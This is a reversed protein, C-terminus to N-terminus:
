PDNRRTKFYEAIRSLQAGVEYLLQVPIMMLVMSLADPPSLVASVAANGVIAIRRGQSWLSASVWGWATSFTMVVPLEMVLATVLLVGLSTNVYSLLRWHPQGADGGFRLVAKLVEPLVFIYGLVVGILFVFFVTFTLTLIRSKENNKLGPGVFGAVEFGLPVIALFFGLVLSIRLYAWVTEFIETVIIQPVPFSPESLRITDIPLKLLEVGKESFGYAVLFGLLLWVLSRRLRVLLEDIHDWLPKKFKNATDQGLNNKTM